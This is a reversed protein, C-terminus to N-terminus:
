MFLKRVTIKHNKIKKSFQVLDFIFEVIKGGKHSPRKQTFRLRGLDWHTKTASKAGKQNKALVAFLIFFMEEEPV